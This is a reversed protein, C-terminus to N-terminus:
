SQNLMAAKRMAGPLSTRGNRRAARRRSSPVCARCSIRINRVLTVFEPGVFVVRWFL